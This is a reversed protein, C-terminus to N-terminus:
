FDLRCVGGLSSKLQSRDANPLLCEAELQDLLPELVHADDNGIYTLLTLPGLQKLPQFWRRMEAFFAKQQQFTDKLLLDGAMLVFRPRETEAVPVFDDWKVIRQHLDSTTIIKMPQAPDCSKPATRVVFPTTRHSPQPTHSGTHADLDFAEQPYV